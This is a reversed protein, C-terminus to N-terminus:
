PKPPIILVSGIRMKTPDVTPNADKLAKLSIGLKQSIAWMTDGAKVTYTTGDAPATPEASVDPAPTAVESPAPTQAFLDTPAPTVVPSPEPTPTTGGGCAAVILAGALLITL